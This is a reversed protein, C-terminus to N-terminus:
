MDIDIKDQEFENMKDVEIEFEDMLGVEEV